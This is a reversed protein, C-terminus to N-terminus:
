KSEIIVWGLAADLTLGVNTDDYDIPVGDKTFPDTHTFVLYSAGHIDAGSINEVTWSSTARNLTSTPPDPSFGVLSQTPPVAYIGEVSGLVAPDTVFPIGFADRANQAQAESLGFNTSPDQPTSPGDFFVDVPVARAPAALGLPVALTVLALILLSRLSQKWHPSAASEAM